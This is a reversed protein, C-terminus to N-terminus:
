SSTHDRLLVTSRALARLAAIRPSSFFGQAEAPIVRAQPFVSDAKATTSYLKAKSSYSRIWM